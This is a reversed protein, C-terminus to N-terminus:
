KSNINRMKLALSSSLNKMFIFGLRYDTNLLDHLKGGDFKIVSMEGIANVQASRSVGELFTIEGFQDGPNLIAVKQNIRKNSISVEAQGDLITYLDFDISNEQIIISKDQYKNIETIEILKELNLKNIEKFLEFTKLTEILEM